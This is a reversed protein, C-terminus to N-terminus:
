PFINGEFLFLNLFTNRTRIESELFLSLFFSSPINWVSIHHFSIFYIVLSCDMRSFNLPELLTPVIPVLRLIAGFQIM